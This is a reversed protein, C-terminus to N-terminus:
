KSKVKDAAKDMEMVKKIYSQPMSVATGGPNVIFGVTQDPLKMEALKKYDMLLLRFQKDARFRDYEYKDTFLPIVKDKNINNTLIVLGLAKKGGINAENYPMLYRANKMSMGMNRDLQMRLRNDPAEKKVRLEQMFLLMDKQLAPNETNVANNRMNGAPLKRKALEYLYIHYIDLFSLALFLVQEILLLLFLILILHM